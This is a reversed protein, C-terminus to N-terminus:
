DLKFIEVIDQGTSQLYLGDYLLWTFTNSFIPFSNIDVDILWKVHEREFEEFVPVEPHISSDNWSCILMKACFLALGANLNLREKKNVSVIPRYDMICLETVSAIKSRHIIVENGDGNDFKPRVIKEVVKWYNKNLKRAMSDIDKKYAIKGNVGNKDALLQFKRLWTKFEQERKKKKKKLRRSDKKSLKDIPNGPISDPM